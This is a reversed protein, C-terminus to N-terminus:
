KTATAASAVRKEFLTPKLTCRLIVTKCEATTVAGSSIEKCMLCLRGLPCAAKPFDKDRKKSPLECCPNIISTLM